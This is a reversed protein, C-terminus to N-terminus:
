AQTANQNLKLRAMTFLNASVISSWIYAKFSAFGKWNCLRLGFCRKLWSIGSEIGARFRRLRKYVYESRCMDEQKIGRRKAFCVDKVGEKGKAIKLNEKSAFGGDLAAKLPYRDYIDKQRDLMDEVLTSDAPNGELITCDLILNSKGGTLCIKHGFLPERRDKIIIDTHPEFISLVKESAPVNEGKLVRRQTQDIVKEALDIFHNLDQVIGNIALAMVPDNFETQSLRSVANQSYGVTKRTVKILDKYQKKRGKKGKANMIALLRRKARRTHDTFTLTAQDIFRANVSTLIRALVRVCDYLQNSDRPDHINTPVVTCDIRVERGRELKEEQAYCVNQCNIIEWTEPSISKINSCLAASSFGKHGIGILCFNRYTTSDLLHFSLEAYSFGERQKIIAAKLVQESTMGNAGANDKKVNETLDMHVMDFILPNAQLIQDVAKYEAAHSHKVTPTMFSLQDNFKKRM